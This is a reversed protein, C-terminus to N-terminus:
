SFPGTRRATGSTGLNGMRFGRCRPRRGATPPDAHPRVAASSDRSGWDLSTSHSEYTAVGEPLPRSPLDEHRCADAGFAARRLVTTGAAAARRVAAQTSPPLRPGVMGQAIPAPAREDIAVSLRSWGSMAPQRILEQCADQDAGGGRVLAPQCGCRRHCRHPLREVPGLREDALKQRRLRARACRASPVLSLDSM